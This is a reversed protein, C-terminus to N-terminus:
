SQDPSTEIINQHASEVSGNTRTGNILSTENLLQRYTITTNLTVQEEDDEDSMFEMEHFAVDAGVDTSRVHVIGGRRGYGHVRRWELISEDTGKWSLPTEESDFVIRKCQMVVWLDAVNQICNLVHDPTGGRMEAHDSTFLLAASDTNAKTKEAADELQINLASPKPKIAKSSNDSSSNSLKSTQKTPVTVSQYKQQQKQQQQPKKQQRQTKQTKQQRQTKQQKQSQQLTPTITKKTTLNGAVQNSNSPHRKRQELHKLYGSAFTYMTRKDRSSRTVWLATRNLLETWGREGKERVVEKVDASISLCAFAHVELQHQWATLSEREDWRLVDRGAVHLLIHKSANDQLDSVGHEIRYEDWSTTVDKDDRWCSAQSEVSCNLLQPRGIIDLKVNYERYLVRSIENMDLLRVLPMGQLDGVIVLARNRAVALSIAWAVGRFLEMAYDAEINVVLLKAKRWLVDLLMPSYGEIRQETDTMESNTKNVSSESMSAGKSVNSPVYSSMISKEPHSVNGSSTYSHQNLEYPAFGGEIVNLLKHPIGHHDHLLKRHAKLLVSARKERPLGDLLSPIAQKGFTAHIWLRANSRPTPVLMSLMRSHRDIQEIHSRLVRFTMSRLSLISPSGDQLIGTWGKKKQAEDQERAYAAAYFALEPILAARSELTRLGVIRHQQALLANGPFDIAHSARAHMTDWSLGMSIHSLRDVLDAIDFGPVDLREDFGHVKTFHQKSVYVLEIPKMDSAHAREHGISVYFRSKKSKSRGTMTANKDDNKTSNSSEENTMVNDDNLTHIDLADVSIMSRCDTLVLNVGSAVAAGLNFARSRYWRQAQTPPPPVSSSSMPSSLAEEKVAGTSSPSLMANTNGSPSSIVHSANGSTNYFNNARYDDNKVNVNVPPRSSPSLHKSRKNNKTFAGDSVFNIYMIRGQRDVSDIVDLARESQAVSPSDHVIIVERVGHLSLWSSLVPPHIRATNACAAVLTNNVTDGLLRRRSRLLGHLSDPSLRKTFISHQTSFHVFPTDKATRRHFHYLTGTAADHVSNSILSPVSTFPILLIVIFVCTFLSTRAFDRLASSNSQLPNATQETASQRQSLPLLPNLM